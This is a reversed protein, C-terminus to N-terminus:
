ADSRARWEAAKTVYAASHTHTARHALTWLVKTDAQPSNSFIVAHRYCEATGPHQGGVQCAKRFAARPSERAKRPTSPFPLTLAARRASQDWLISSVMTYYIGERKIADTYRMPAVSFEKLLSDMMDTTDNNPPPKPRHGSDSPVTKATFIPCCAGRPAAISLTLLQLTPFM